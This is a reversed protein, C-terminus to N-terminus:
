GKKPKVKWTKMRQLNVLKECADSVVLNKSKVKKLLLTKVWNLLNSKRRQEKGSKKRGREKQKEASDEHDAAQMDIDGSMDLNDNRVLSADIDDLDNDLEEKPKAKAGGKTKPQVKLDLM